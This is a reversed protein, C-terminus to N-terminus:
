RILFFWAFGGVTFCVCACVALDVLAALLWAFFDRIEPGYVVGAVAAAIMAAAILALQSGM